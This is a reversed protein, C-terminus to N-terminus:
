DEPVPPPPQEPEPEPEQTKRPQRISHFRPGGQFIPDDEKAMGLDTHSLAKRFVPELKIEAKKKM